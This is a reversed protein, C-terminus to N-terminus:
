EKREEPETNKAGVSLMKIIEHKIDGLADSYGEEKDNDVFPEMKHIILLIKKLTDNKVIREASLFGAHFGQAELRTNENGEWEVFMEDGFNSTEDSIPNNAFFRFCDAIKNIEM